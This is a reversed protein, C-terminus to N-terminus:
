RRHPPGPQGDPRPTRGGGDQPEVAPAAAAGDEAVEHELDRPGRGTWQDHDAVPMARGDHRVRRQQRAHLRRPLLRPKKLAAPEPLGRNRRGRAGSLPKPGRRDGLPGAGRCARPFAEAAFLLFRVDEESRFERDGAVIWVPSTQAFAYGDAVMPSPPGLARAAIWGGEDARVRSEVRFREGKDAADHTDVVTGNVVIEVTQLPTISAAEVVVLREGGGGEPVRIEGGPEVGDVTLFLLPGNTAFTRRERM